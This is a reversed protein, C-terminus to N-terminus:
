EQTLAQSHQKGLMRRSSASAFYFQACDVRMFPAPQKDRLILLMLSRAPIRLM